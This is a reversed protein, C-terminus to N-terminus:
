KRSLVRVKKNTNQPQSFLKELRQDWCQQNRNADQVFPSATILNILLNNIFSLPFSVPRVIDIFLVVRTEDTDNWAEHEFSDDFIMCKGEEWYRVEDQVKIRCFERPEPVKLGLLCRIVGKYVGRHKPIHKGPLLISFFATKIGPIKELLRTTEPCRKCSNESKIGYGYLFYTKWKKDQSTGYAQDPSIDQFNPLHDRYKLIEDLEQRILHWNEELEPVWDFQERKFFPTDGILSYRPILKEIKWLLPAAIKRLVIWRLQEKLTAVSFKTM